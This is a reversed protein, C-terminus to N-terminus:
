KQAGIFGFTSFNLLYPHNSNPSTLFIPRTTM